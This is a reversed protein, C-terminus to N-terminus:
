EGKIRKFLAILSDKIHPINPYLKLLKAVSLEANARRAKLMKDQEEVTFGEYVHAPDIYKKYLELVEHHSIAGPNVFNFNGKVEKLTMDVAIPLLDDLVTLSNPVNVVKKYRIIKSVFGKDSETSVPMKVRLHLVNPYELMLSEMQIKTRSYFSGTFNPAEEETFGIGSRAPHKDDYEYICGTSINTLHINHMFAIDALNLTGILNTRITEQKHDECWDVNPKGTIGAANIIYDPKTERIEQIIAERDELRSVACRPTHGLDSIITVIKQGIWGTKGGFVLFTKARLCPMSMLVNLMFIMLFYNKM